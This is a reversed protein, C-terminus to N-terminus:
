NALILRIKREGQYPNRGHMVLLNDILLIDNRFWPATVKIEDIIQRTLNLDYIDLPENNAHCVYHYFETEPMISLLSEYTNIDLNSPHWQHAQSIFIWENTKPHCIVPQVIESIRLNENLEWQYSIGRKKLIREVEAKSNTEFVDQWSKGIGYGNHLNMIYKLKKNRYKEVLDSPLLRYLERNDALPTEGGYLSPVECYFLLYRPYKNSFSMENHLAIIQDAPYETSTYVKQTLKTRPSDGGVYTDCTFSLSTAILELENIDNIQFGRYLIAGHKALHNYIKSQETNNYQLLSEVSNNYFDNSDLILPLPVKRTM